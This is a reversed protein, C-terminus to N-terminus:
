RRPDRELRREALRLLREMEAGGIERLWREAQRVAEREDVRGRLELRDMESGIRERLWREARRLAVRDEYRDPERGLAFRGDLEAVDRLDGLDFRWCRSSPPATGELFYEERGCDDFWGGGGVRAEVIGDPVAFGESRIRGQEMFRAVIPVAAVGGTRRLSQGDDHGVWVGVVLEPTYAIFWADRWDNSTGTKGAIGGRRLARGTGREVVGQLASTVLFATAPDVVRPAEPHSVSSVPEGDRALGVIMRSEALRGEAAFVGYARVLELLSVESAGLALSPVETLPSTIGLRRATEAIREPGLALGIRAFPVNLSQEMADRLTVDGRFAGDYNAPQWVDPGSRVSLPEDPVMSALTYAPEARSPRELAALAVIPKFASGPQRLAQVARNFQSAGYDRGGVMALLEGTRPDIAVLAAQAKPDGMQALGRAIAEEAARQLAPDLTTYVAAGRAPLGRPLSAALHDRFWRGDLTRQPHARTPVRVAASQNRARESIRGQEAMLGLVLNRRARLEEPWRQPSLRNPSRILAALTAAESLLVQEADKGFYYRSAAGVGHIAAGRDQGLYIENLYAELIEEKTHRSELVIAMAAERLKRLPTRDASLYLNKALQQTITSGGQSIGRAKINAVLAGGIRRVDLGWHEHFRQDEVALVADILHDPYADLELPVRSELAAGELTGIPISQQADGAVSSPRSYLATPLRAASETLRARVLAEAAVGLLLATTAVVIGLVVRRGTVEQKWGDRLVVAAGRVRDKASQWKM